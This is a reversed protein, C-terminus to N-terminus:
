GVKKLEFTEEGDFFFESKENGEEIKRLSKCIPCPQYNICEYMFGCDDCKIYSM